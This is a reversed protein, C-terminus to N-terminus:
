RTSCSKLAKHFCCLAGSFAETGNEIQLAHTKTYKACQRPPKKAKQGLIMKTCRLATTHYVTASKQLMPVITEAAVVPIGLVTAILPADIRMRIMELHMKLALYYEDTPLLANAVIKVNARRFWTISKEQLLICALDPYKMAYTRRHGVKPVRAADM